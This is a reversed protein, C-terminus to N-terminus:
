DRLVLSRLLELKAEGCTRCRFDSSLRFDRTSVMYVVDGHSMLTGCANCPCKTLLVDVEIRESLM